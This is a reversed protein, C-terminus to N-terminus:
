EEVDVVMTASNGDNLEFRTIYRGAASGARFSATLRGAPIPEDFSKGIVPTGPLAVSPGATVSQGSAAAPAEISFRGIDSGGHVLRGGQDDTQVIGVGVYAAGDADWLLFDWPMDIASNPRTKQYITNPNPPGGENIDGPVFVSTINISPGIEPRIVFEGSGSELVKGNGDVISVDVPYAGADDPNVFGLLILHLQKIGPGPLPVGDIDVVASYVLTNTETEHTFTYQIAKGPPASPLIPHQPWGHLMVATSCRLNGPVCDEASFLDAMPHTDANALVFSTPLVVKISYGMPLTKGPVAPDMDVDLNIVFDTAAGAVDGDPSVPAKVISDVLGAAYVTSGASFLLVIVYFLIPRM